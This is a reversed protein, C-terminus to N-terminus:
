VSWWDPRGRIPKWTAIEAKAGQYYARYAEVPDARKYEDPMAQAFPTLGVDPLNAKSLNRITWLIVDESAHQRGYRLTYEESLALGHEALWLANARSERVWVSCPHNYHTRRYPASGVPFAACLLQASELVMKSCHKDITYRAAQVPDRDLIFINMAKGKM